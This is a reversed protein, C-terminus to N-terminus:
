QRSSRKPKPPPLSRVYAVCGAIHMQWDGRATTETTFIVYQTVHEVAEGAACYHAIRRKVLEAATTPDLRLVVQPGDVYAAMLGAVWFVRCGFMSKEKDYHPELAARLQDTLQPEPLSAPM